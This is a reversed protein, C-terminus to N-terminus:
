RRLFRKFRRRGYKSIVRIVKKRIVGEDEKFIVPKNRNMLIMDLMCTLCYGGIIKKNMKVVFVSNRENCIMCKIDRRKLRVKTEKKFDKILDEEGKPKINVM